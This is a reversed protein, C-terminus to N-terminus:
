NLSEGSGAPPAAGTTSDTATVSTFLSSTARQAKQFAELRAVASSSLIFEARDIIRRDLDTQWQDMAQAYAGPQETGSPAAPQPVALREEHVINVLQEATDHSLPTQALDLESLLPEVTQRDVISDDYARLEELQKANLAARVADNDAANAAATQYGAHSAPALADVLQRSQYDALADLVSVASSGSLHWQKLLDSYLQLTPGKLQERLADGAAPDALKEALRASNPSRVTTTRAALGVAASTARTPSHTLPMEAANQTLGLLGLPPRREGFSAVPRPEDRAREAAVRRARERDLARWTVGNTVILATIALTVGIALASARDRREPAPPRAPLRVSMLLEAAILCGQLNEM